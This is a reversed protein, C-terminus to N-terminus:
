LVRSRLVLVTLAPPLANPLVAVAHQYLHTRVEPELSSVFAITHPMNLRWEVVLNPDDLGAMVEVPAVEVDHLGAALAIETLRDPYGTLVAIREKFEKYWHPRQYGFQELVEEVVEKAPHDQEAPFTSALVIGGRRTVRACERLGAAPNPLHNLSFAAVVADVGGARFPLALADGVVGPPREGHRHRVMAEALDVGFPQAGAAVLAASAVGTGTGLDLVLWGRLPVPSADILANALHRYVLTPGHAWAEASGEYARKIDHAIADSM